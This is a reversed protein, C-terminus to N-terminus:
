SKCFYTKIAILVKELTQEPTLDTNDIVLDYNREDTFDFDYLERLRNRASNVRFNVLEKIQEDTKDQLDEDRERLRRVVEDVDTKLYIKFANPFFYAGLRYDVIVCGDQHLVSHVFDSDLQRDIEPNTECLRQYQYISLGMKKANERAIKGISLFSSNFKEALNKALYSKGTGATGSIVIIKSM